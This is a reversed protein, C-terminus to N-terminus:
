LRANLVIGYYALIAKANNRLLKHRRTTEDFHIECMRQPWRRFHMRLHFTVEAELARRFSPDSFESPLPFYDVSITQGSYNVRWHYALYNKRMGGSRRNLRLAQRFGNIIRRCHSGSEGVRIIKGEVLFLYLGYRYEIPWPLNHTRLRGNEDLTATHQHRPIRSRLSGLARKKM